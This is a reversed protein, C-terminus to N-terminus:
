SRGATPDEGRDIAKWLEAPSLEAGDASPGTGAAGRRRGPRAAEPGAGPADYRSSMGPWSRGRVLALVGALLVLVGGLASIWPWASHSVGHAATHALGVARAAKADLAAGGDRGDVATFAAGAGALMILAGMAYRAAGRFAFVAILAALGVLALAAPAGTVDGGTVSVRISAADLSVTGRAWTEGAAVLVLVAGVVVLALAGALSRRGRRRAPAAPTGPGPAGAEGDHAHAPERAPEAGPGTSGPETSEPETATGAPRPSPVASM